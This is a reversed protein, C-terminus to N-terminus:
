KARLLEFFMDEFKKMDVATAVEIERGGFFSKATKGTSKGSLAVDIRM